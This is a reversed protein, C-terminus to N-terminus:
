KLPSFSRADCEPPLLGDVVKNGILGGVVSEVRAEVQTCIEDRGVGQGIWFGVGLLLFVEIIIGLGLLVPQRRAERIVEM